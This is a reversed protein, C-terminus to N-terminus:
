EPSKYFKGLAAYIMARWIKAIEWEPVNNSKQWGYHIMTDTPDLMATIVAHIPGDDPDSPDYSHEFWYAKLAAKGRELMETM